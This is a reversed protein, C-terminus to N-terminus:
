LNILFGIQWIFLRKMFYGRDFEENSNAYKEAIEICFSKFEKAPMSKKIKTFSRGKKEM